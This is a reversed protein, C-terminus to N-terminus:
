GCVVLARAGEVRRRRRSRRCSGDLRGLTHRRGHGTSTIPARPPPAPATDNCGSPVPSAYALLAQDVADRPHMGADRIVCGLARPTVAPAPLPHAENGNEDLDPRPPAGLELNGATYVRTGPAVAISQQRQSFSSDPRPLYANGVVNARAAAEIKTGNARLWRGFINHRLDATVAYGSARILPFRDCGRDDDGCMVVTHHMSIRDTSRFTSSSTSGWLMAKSASVISWQITINKPGSSIDIGGDACDSISVHDIVINMVGPGNLGLCDTSSKRAPAGGVERIRLGRVIIDHAGPTTDWINLGWGRLTIGPSPASFGDITVFPGHVDIQSLLPITGAVAFRVYRNGGAVCERLSGPGSDFLSTVVCEPKSAGGPTGAGFGEIPAHMAGAAVPGSRGMLGGPPLDAGLAIAGIAVATGLVTPLRSM